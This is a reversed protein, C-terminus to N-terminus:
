KTGKGSFVFNYYVFKDNFHYIEAFSNSRGIASIPLDTPDLALNPLISPGISLMMKITSSVVKTLLFDFQIAKLETNKTVLILQDLGLHRLSLPVEVQNLVIYANFGNKDSKKIEYRYSNLLVSYDFAEKYAGEVSGDFTLLAYGGFGEVLKMEIFSKPCQKKVTRDMLDYFLREKPSVKEGLTTACKVFIYILPVNKKENNKCVKLTSEFDFVNTVEEDSEVKYGNIDSKIYFNKGNTNFENSTMDAITRMHAVVINSNYERDEQNILRYNWGMDSEINNWETKKITRGAFDVALDTDEGFKVAWYSNAKEKLVKEKDLYSIDETDVCEATGNIEQVIQDDKKKWDSHQSLLEQITDHNLELQNESCYSLFSNFSEEEGGLSVFTVELNLTDIEKQLSAKEEMIKDEKQKYEELQMNLSSLISKNEEMQSSFKEVQETLLDKTDKLESNEKELESKEFSISDFRESALREEEENRTKEDLYAEKEEKLKKLEQELDFVQQEYTECKRIMLEEKQDGELRIQQMAEHLKNEDAEYNSIRQQMVESEYKLKALEEEKESLSNHLQVIENQKSTLQEQLLKSNEGETESKLQYESTKENFSKELEVKENELQSVVEKLHILETKVLDFDSSIHSLTTTLTVKTQSLIANEEELENVQNKLTDTYNKVSEFSSLLMTKEQALKENEQTLIANENSLDEVKSLLLEQEEEVNEVMQLGTFKEEQQIPHEVEEKVEEAQEESFIEEESDEAVENSTELEVEVQEPEELKEPEVLFEEPEVNMESEENVKGKIETTEEVITSEPELSEIEEQEVKENEQTEDEPIEVEEEEESFVTDDYEEIEEDFDKGEEFTVNETNEDLVQACISSVDPLKFKQNGNFVGYLKKQYDRISAEDQSLSALCDFPHNSDTVDYITFTGYKKGRRVEFLGNGIKFASKESRVNKTIYSCPLLNVKTNLGGSSLPKICDLTWGYNSNENEFDDKKIPQAAFDYAADRDGFYQNWIELALNKDM